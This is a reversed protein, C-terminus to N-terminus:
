ISNHIECSFCLPTKNFKWKKLARELFFIVVQGNTEVSIM